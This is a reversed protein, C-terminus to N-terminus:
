RFTTKAIRVTEYPVYKLQLHNMQQHIVTNTKELNIKLKNIHLWKIIAVKCPGKKMYWVM